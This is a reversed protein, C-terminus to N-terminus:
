QREKDDGMVSARSGFIEYPRNDTFTKTTAQIVRKWDNSSFVDGARMALPALMNMDEHVGSENEQMIMAAM